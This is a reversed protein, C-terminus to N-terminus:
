APEETARHRLRGRRSLPSPSLQPRKLDQASPHTDCTSGLRLLCHTHSPHARLPGAQGTELRERQGDLTQIPASGSGTTEGLVPDLHLHFPAPLSNSQQRPSPPPTGAETQFLMKQKRVVSAPMTTSGLSSVSACLLSTVQRPGVALIESHPDTHKM